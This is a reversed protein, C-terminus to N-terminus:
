EFDIVQLVSYLLDDDCEGGMSELLLHAIMEPRKIARRAIVDVSEM